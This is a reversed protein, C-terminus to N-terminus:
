CEDTVESLSFMKITFVFPTREAGRVLEIKIWVSM